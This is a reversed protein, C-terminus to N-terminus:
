RFPGEAALRALQPLLHMTGSDRGSYFCSVAPPPCCAQSRAHAAALQLLMSYLPNIGAGGAILLLHRCSFLPLSTSGTAPNQASSSIVGTKLLTFTGGCRVGVVTGPSCSESHIWSAVPHASVRVALDFENDDRPADVLDAVESPLNKPCKQTMSNLQKANRGLPRAQASTFSYGGVRDIGEAFFDVWQGGSYEFKETETRLRLIAM